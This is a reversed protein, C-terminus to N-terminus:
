LKKKFCLSVPSCLGQQEEFGCHLLVTQSALNKPHVFAFMERCERREAYVCLAMTAVTAYGRRTFPAGVWYGIEGQLAVQRKHLNIAGVLTNDHWIGLRLRESYAPNIISERVADETSYKESIESAFPAFHERSVSILDYLAGADAVSYQRLVLGPRTTPICVPDM